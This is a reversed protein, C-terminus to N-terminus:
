DVSAGNAAGRRNLTLRVKYRSAPFHVLGIEILEGDSSYFKNRVCLSPSGVAVNLRSAINADVLTAGIEQEVRRVLLGHRKEILAVLETEAGFDAVVDAYDPKVYVESYCFPASQGDRSRLLSLRVWEAGPEIDLRRGLTEDMRIMETMLVVAKTSRAYDLLEDASNVSNVFASDPDSTVLVSRAGRRRKIYGMEQLERLAERVTNRGVEFRDVLEMETPFSNGPIWTGDQIEGVLTAAIERYGITKPKRKTAVGLGRTVDM